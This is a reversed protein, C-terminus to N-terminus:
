IEFCLKNSRLTRSEQPSLTDLSVGCACLHVARPFRTGPTFILTLNHLVKFFQLCFRNDDLQGCDSLGGIYVPPSAKIKTYPNM